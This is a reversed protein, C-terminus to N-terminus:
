TEKSKGESRPHREIESLCELNQTAIVAKEGTLDVTMAVTKNSVMKGLGGAKPMQEKQGATESTKSQPTTIVKGAKKNQHHRRWRTRTMPSNGKYNPSITYGIKKKPSTTEKELM